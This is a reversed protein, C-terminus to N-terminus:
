PGKQAQRVGSQDGEQLKASMQQMTSQNQQLKAVVQNLQEGLAKRTQEMSALRTEVDAKADQLSKEVAVDAGIGVIVQKSTELKAKVYSGGGVPVFLQTGKKQNELGELTVNSLRLETIASNMMGLRSQLENM